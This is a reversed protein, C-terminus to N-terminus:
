WQGSYLEYDEPADLDLGISDSRHIRLVAGAARAAACHRAFSDLGFAFDIVDLPRLLLANTGASHRDPAIVVCSGGDDPQLAMMAAIDHATVAVLDAPLVLMASNPADAAIQDRAECLAENLGEGSERLVRVGRDALWARVDDDRTVVAVLGVGPEARLVHILRRLADETIEIRRQLDLVRSLRSKGRPLSKIPIVATLTPRRASM